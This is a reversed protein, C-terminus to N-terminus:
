IVTSTSFSGSGYGITKLKLQCHCGRGRTRNKNPLCRLPLIEGDEFLCHGIALSWPCSIFLAVLPATANKSEISITHTCTECARFLLYFRLVNEMGERLIILICEKSVLTSM